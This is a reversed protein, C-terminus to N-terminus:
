NYQIPANRQEAGGFACIHCVEYIPCDLLSGANMFAVNTAVGQPKGYWPVRNTIIYPGYAM